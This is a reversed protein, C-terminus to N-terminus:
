NLIVVCARVCGCECEHTRILQWCVCLFPYGVFVFCESMKVDFGCEVSSMLNLETNYM